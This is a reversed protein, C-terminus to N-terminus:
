MCAYSSCVKISHIASCSRRSAVENVQLGVYRDAAASDHCGTLLHNAAALLLLLVCPM